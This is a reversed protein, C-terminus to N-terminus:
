TTSKREQAFSDLDLIDFMVRRPSLRIRTLPLNQIQRVSVGLYVAAQKRNLYRRTQVDMSM